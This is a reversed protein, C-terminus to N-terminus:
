QEESKIEEPSSDEEQIIGEKDEKQGEKGEGQYPFSVTLSFTLGTGGGEEDKEGKSLNIESILVPRINEQLLGILNIINGYEGDVSLIVEVVGEKENKKPNLDGIALGAEGVVAEIQVIVEPIQDEEPMALELSKLNEEAQIFNQSLERLDDLKQKKLKLEEEKAALAINDEKLQNSFPWLLFYGAMVSLIVLLAIILSNKVSPKKNEM